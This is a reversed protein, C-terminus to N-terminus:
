VSPTYTGDSEWTGALNTFTPTVPTNKFMKEFHANANFTWGNIASADTLSHLGEFTGKNLLLREEESGGASFNTVKAVDWNELGHLSTLATCNRFANGMSEVNETNWSSLPELSSISRNAEFICDFDVVNGVNWGSIPALDSFSTSSFLHSMTTVNGVNWSELGEISSLSACEDFLYSMDTVNSTKWKNLPTVSEISTCKYFAKKLTTVSATNWRELGDLSKLSECYYFLVSMDTVNSTDWESLPSISTLKYCKYFTSHLSTASKTYWKALGSINELDHCDAFLYDFDEVKSVNWKALENVNKILYCKEFVHGLDEVNSTNWNELGSLSELKYCEEFAHSLDDVNSINWSYLSLVDKLENCESFFGELTTANDAKLYKLDVTELNTFESFMWSSDAPLYIFGDGCIYAVYTNNNLGDDLTYFTVTGGSNSNTIDIVNTAEQPVTPNTTVVISTIKEKLEDNINGDLNKMVLIPDNTVPKQAFDGTVKVRINAEMNEWESFTYHGYKTSNSVVLDNSVWMYLRYLHSTTTSTEKPVKSSYIRRDDLHTYSKGDIITTWNSGNDESKMLTFKLFYDDLRTAGTSIDGNVLRIDYELDEEYENLGEIKFELYKDPDYSESPFADEINLYNASTKTYNLYIDGAILQSEDSKKRFNFFAYSFGGAVIITLVMCCIAIILKKNKM